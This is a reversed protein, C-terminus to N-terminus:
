VHCGRELAGVVVTKHAAPITCDCVVEPKLTDILGLFDTSVEVQSPDLGNAERCAKAAELNLDALGVVQCDERSM